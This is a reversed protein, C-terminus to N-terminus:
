TLYENEDLKFSKTVWEPDLTKIPNGAGDNLASIPALKIDEQEMLTMIRREEKEQLIRQERQKLNEKLASDDPLM